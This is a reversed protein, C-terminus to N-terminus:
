EYEVREINGKFDKHNNFNGNLIYGNSGLWYTTNESDIVFEILSGDYKQECGNNTHKDDKAEVKVVKLVIGTDLTIVFKNGIDGFHSGLAVGIYGQNDYLLGNEAVKMNDKIYKYQKSSKNTIRRYDM